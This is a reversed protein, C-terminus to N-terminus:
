GDLDRGGASKRQRPLNRIIIAHGRQSGPQFQRFALEIVVANRRFVVLEQFGCRVEGQGQLLDIRALGLALAELVEGFVGPRSELDLQHEVGGVLGTLGAGAVHQLELQWLARGGLRQRLGQDLLAAVQEQMRFALAVHHAGQQGQHDPRFPQDFARADVEADTSRCCAEVTGAGM